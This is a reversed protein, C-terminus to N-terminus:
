LFQNVGFVRLLKRDASGHRCPFHNGNKIKSKRNDPPPSGDSATLRTTSRPTASPEKWRPGNKKRNLRAVPMIHSPM